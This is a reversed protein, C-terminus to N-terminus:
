PNASPLEPFRECETFASAIQRAREITIVPLNVITTQNRQDLEGLLKAQLELIGKIERVAAVAKHIDGAKEARDALRVARFFNTSVRSRPTQGRAVSRAEPDAEPEAASGSTSEAARAKLVDFSLHKRHRHLGTVTLSAFTQASERMARGALLAQDIEARKEHRCTKCDSRPRSM